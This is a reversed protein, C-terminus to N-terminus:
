RRRWLIEFTAWIATIITGGLALAIMADPIGPMTM